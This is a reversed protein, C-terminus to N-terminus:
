DYLEYATPDYRYRPEISPRQLAATMADSYRCQPKVSIFFRSCSETALVVKGDTGILTPDGAEGEFWTVSGSEETM